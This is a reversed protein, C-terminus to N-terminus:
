RCWMEAAQLCEAYSWATTSSTFQIFTPDILLVSRRFSVQLWSHSFPPRMHLTHPYSQQKNLFIHDVTGTWVGTCITVVFGMADLEKKIRHCVETCMMFLPPQWGLELHRTYAGQAHRTVTDRALNTALHIRVTIVELAIHFIICVGLLPM